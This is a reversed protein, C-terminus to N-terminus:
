EGIHSVCICHNVCTLDIELMKNTFVASLDAFGFLSHDTFVTKLPLCFFKFCVKLSVIFIRVCGVKLGLLSAITMAEHGLASFASHGHVVEIRERLM